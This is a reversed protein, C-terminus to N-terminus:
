WDATFDIFGPKKLNRVAAVGEQSFPQWPVRRSYDLGEARFSATGGEGQAIETVLFVKGAIVSLAVAIGLSLLRARPTAIESGWKGFVWAGVSVATLFGLFGIVGAQGTLTAITDILWVATALLTFGMIKEFVELWPGPKPLFRFLVPVFGIVLFPFALGLGAASFFLLIGWSPLTFAFGLGTGLFPASCPTAVLTVFLGTMLHGSLGHKRGAQSAVGTAMAPIQFVGLLSLAFVFILTTLAIVFAPEQFQFGWGVQRGLSRLVIVVGAFANLCILVGATYAFAAGQRAASPVDKQGVLSFLKLTLVPLVCPMVNLLLGGLFALGLMALFSPGPTAAGTKPAAVSPAVEGELIKIPFSFPDKRPICSVACIQYDLIGKVEFPGPAPGKKIFVPVTLTVKGDHYDYAPIDDEKPHVKAAPEEVKGAQEAGEFVFKTPTGTTTPYTPYIYWGKTVDLEFAVKFTEGVKVEAKDPKISLVKAETRKKPAPVDQMGLLSTALLLSIM